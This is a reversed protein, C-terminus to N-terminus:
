KQEEEEKIFNYPPLMPIVWPKVICNSDIIEQKPFIVEKNNLTRTIPIILPDDTHKQIDNYEEQSIGLEELPIPQAQCM